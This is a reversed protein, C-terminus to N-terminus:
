KYGPLLTGVVMKSTAYPGEAPIEVKSMAERIVCFGPQNHAGLNPLLLFSNEAGEM